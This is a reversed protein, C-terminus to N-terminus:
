VFKGEDRMEVVKKIIEPGVRCCGGVVDAGAKVWEKVLDLWDEDTAAIGCGDVWSKSDNDWDGRSPYCVVKKGFEKIPTLIKILDTVYRPDTCNIGIGVM